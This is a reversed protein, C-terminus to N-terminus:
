LLLKPRFWEPQKIEILRGLRHIYKKTFFKMTAKEAVRSHDPLYKVIMAEPGSSITEVRFRRCKSDVPTIVLPLSLNYIWIIIEFGTM